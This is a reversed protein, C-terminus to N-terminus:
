GQRSVAYLVYGRSDVIVVAERFTPGWAAGSFLYKKCRGSLCPDNPNSTLSKIYEAPRVPDGLTNIVSKIREGPRVTAFKDWSFRDSSVKGWGFPDFTLTVYTIAVCLTIAVVLSVLSVLLRKKMGLVGVSLREKQPSEGHSGGGSLPKASHADSKRM